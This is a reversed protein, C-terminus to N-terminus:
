FASHVEGPNERCALMRLVICACVSESAALVNGRRHDLQGSCASSERVRPAMDADAPVHRLVCTPVFGSVGSDASIHGMGKGRGGM